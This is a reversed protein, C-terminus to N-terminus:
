LDAKSFFAAFCLETTRVVFSRHYVLIRHADDDDDDDDNKNTHM